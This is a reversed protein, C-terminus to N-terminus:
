KVEKYAYLNMMSPGTVVSPIEEEYSYKVLFNGSPLEVLNGHSYRWSEINATVEIASNEPPTYVSNSVLKSLVSQTENNRKQSEELRVTLIKTVLTQERKNIDRELTSLLTQKEELEKAQADREAIVKELKSVEARLEGIQDLYGNIEEVQAEVKKIASEGDELRQKLTDAMQAPLHKGIIEKIEEQLEM